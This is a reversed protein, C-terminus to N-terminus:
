KATKKATKPAHSKKGTEAEEEKTEEAEQEEKVAEKEEKVPAKPAEKVEEEIKVFGPITALAELADKELKNKLIGNEDFELLGFASNLIGNVYRRHQLKM